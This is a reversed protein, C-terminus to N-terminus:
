LAELRAQLEPWGEWLGLKLFATLVLAHHVAGSRLLGQWERWGCAHLALEETFDPDLAGAQRCDLALFSHTRNNQTAPNPTCHGLPIWLDSVFGTEEALERQASALPAEGPDCAGGPIEFTPGDIGHRFQEVVLLEGGLGLPTFAVVNVWDPGELRFYAHGRGTHPSTRHAVVQRFIRTDERTTRGTEHWPRAADFGAPNRALLRM